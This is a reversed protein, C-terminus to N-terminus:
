QGSPKSAAADATKRGAADPATRDASEPLVVMTVGRDFRIVEGSNEVELRNANITGRLMRVEVPKESVVYGKHVEVFAESLLGKYNASSVVIDQRLTLKESKTDYIGSRAQLQFAGRNATEMTAKIDQLELVDPKTVDQAAARATVSYPRKDRTYGVLRPAQMTIKTGSVVIGSIDVPLKVLAQLPDLLTVVAFTVASGVVIAFPVGFRLTRM